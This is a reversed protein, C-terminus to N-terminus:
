LDPFKLSKGSRNFIAQAPTLDLGIIIEFNSGSITDNARPIIIKNIEQEVRKVSEGDGFKVPVAYEQKTIVERDTRTVAVWYVYQHSSADAKPGKGFAINLKVEAEIPKDGYYRCALTANEIEATWAIDEAKQEGNFDVLRSADRLVLVNPCLGPNKEQAAKYEKRTSSCGALALAAILAAALAKNM